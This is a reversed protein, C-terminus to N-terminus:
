EEQPLGALPPILPGVQPAYCKKWSKRIAKVISAENFHPQFKARLKKMQLHFLCDKSETSELSAIMILADLDM